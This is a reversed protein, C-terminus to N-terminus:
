NLGWSTSASACLPHDQPVSCCLRLPHPHPLRFGVGPLPRQSAAARAPQSHPSRRHGPPATISPARARGPAPVQPSLGQPTPLQLRGRRSISLPGSTCLSGRLEPDLADSDGSRSSAPRPAWFVLWGSSLQKPNLQPNGPSPPPLRLGDEEASFIRIRANAQLRM